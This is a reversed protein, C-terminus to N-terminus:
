KDSIVEMKTILLVQKSKGCPENSECDNVSATEYGLSVKKNLFKEPTACIEFSAGLDHKKGAQDTLTVYCMLDGQVIEKVTGVKPNKTAVEQTKDTQAVTSTSRKKQSIVKVPADTQSQNLEDTTSRKNTQSQENLKTPASNNPNTKTASQVNNDPNSCSVVLSSFIIILITNMINKSFSRVILSNYNM